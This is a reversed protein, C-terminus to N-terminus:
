QKHARKNIKRAGEILGKCSATFALRIELGIGNVHIDKCRLKLSPTLSIFRDLDKKRSLICTLVQSCFRVRKSQGKRHLIQRAPAKKKSWKKNFCGIFPFFM